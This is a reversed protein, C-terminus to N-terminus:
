LSRFAHHGKCRWDSGAISNSVKNLVREDIDSKVKVRLDETLRADRIVDRIRYKLQVLPKRRQKRM